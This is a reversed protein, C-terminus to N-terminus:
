ALPLNETARTMRDHNEIWYTRYRAVLAEADGPSRALAAMQARLPTGIGARFAADSYGPYGEFAHRACALIFPVTDVLTGDLDFLLAIPRGPAM